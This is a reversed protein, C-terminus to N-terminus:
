RAIQLAAAGSGQLKVSADFCLRSEDSGEFGFEVNDYPRHAAVASLLGREARLCDEVARRGEVEMEGQGLQRDVEEGVVGPRSSLTCILDCTQARNQHFRFMKFPHVLYPRPEGIRQM